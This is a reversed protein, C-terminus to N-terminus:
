EWVCDGGLTWPKADIYRSQKRLLYAAISHQFKAILELRLAPPLQKMISSLLHVKLKDYEAM